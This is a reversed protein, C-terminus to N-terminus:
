PTRPSSVAVRFGIGYDRLAPVYGYRDAARCFQPGDGWSGGRLVRLDGTKSGKPDVNDEKDYKGYLDSCWQWVNGHMDYLGWPNPKFSGVPATFAYGDDFEVAWTASPYKKKLSADAINAYGKLSEVEDGTFYATQKGARCAYEWEAETPLRYEKGEKKKLWECYAVADNWTVNVVPHDDEYPKWGPNKWTYKPNRGELKGTTEDYGWGGEGDREPETLYIKGGHYAKDNVFDRFQGVTVPRSALYYPTKIQVEHLDENDFRGKEGIPSGMMFKGTRIPIMETGASNAFKKRERSPEPPKGDKDKRDKDPLVIVEPKPTDRPADKKANDKDPTSADDGKPGDKPPVTKDKPSDKDKKDKDAPQADDRRPSDKPPDKKDKEPPPADDRKPGDKSPVTKDKAADKEPVGDRSVQKDDNRASSGRPGVLFISGLVVGLTLILAAAIGWTQVSRKAREAAPSSKPKRAPRPLAATADVPRPPVTPPLPPRAGETKESTSPTTPMVGETWDPAPAAGAAVRSLADVFARCNPWREEAKKSLARGVAAREAEPLMSLDPPKTIHGAMLQVPGGEFPLRGSRLQSWSVALAYQDTQPAHRGEFAEPSAYAATLSNTKQSTSASLRRLLGFDGVKCATGVLLLNQPKVDGHGISTPTGGPTLVHRPENLFDIGRAAHQFHELLEERPVGPQGRLRCEKLRDMLTGDALEMALVFWGAINWVGHISLLHGDRIRKLFELARLERESGAEDATLLKIAVPFGGPGVARWVEGFGGKGLFAELRYGSVPEADVAPRFAAVTM